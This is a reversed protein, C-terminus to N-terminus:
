AQQQGGEVRAAPEGTVHAGRTSSAALGGKSKGLTEGATRPLCCLRTPLPPPACSRLPPSAPQRCRNAPPRSPAPLEGSQGRGGEARQGRRAGRLYTHVAHEVSGVLACLLTPLNSIELPPTCARGHLTSSSGPGQQKRRGALRRAKSGAKCETRLMGCM